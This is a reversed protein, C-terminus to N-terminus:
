VGPSRKGGKMERDRSKLGSNDVGIKYVSHGAGFIVRESAELARM